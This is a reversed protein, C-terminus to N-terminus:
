GERVIICDMEANIPTPLASVEFLALMQFDPRQQPPLASFYDAWVEKLAGLDNMNTLYFRGSKLDGWHFGADELIFGINDLVSVCQAKMDYSVQQSNSDLTSGPIDKSGKKRPGIGAVYLFHGIQIAHSYAGVADPARECNRLVFTDDKRRALIDMEMFCGEPLDPVSVTTRCPHFKADMSEFHQKWLKNYGPFDRGMDGLRIWASIIDTWELGRASLASSIQEFVNNFQGHLDLGEKDARIDSLRLAPDTDAMKVNLQTM